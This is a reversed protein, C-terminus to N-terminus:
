TDPRMGRCVPVKECWLSAAAATESKIQERKELLSYDCRFIKKLTINLSLQEDLFQVRPIEKGKRFFFFLM